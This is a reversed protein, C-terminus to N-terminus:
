CHQLQKGGDTQKKKRLCLKKLSKEWQKNIVLSNIIRIMVWVNYSEIQKNWKKGRKFNYKKLREGGGGWKRIKRGIKEQEKQPNKETVRGKTM